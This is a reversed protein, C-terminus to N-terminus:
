GATPTKREPLLLRCPSGATSVIRKEALARKYEERTLQVFNGATTTTHKM